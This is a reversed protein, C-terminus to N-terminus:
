ETGLQRFIGNYLTYYLVVLMMLVMIAAPVILFARSIPGLTSDRADFEGQSSAAVQAMARPVDGTIEGTEVVNNMDYNFLEARKLAVSLPENERMSAAAERARRALERNVLSDAAIEMSSKPSLGAKALNQLAWAFRTLSEATARGNVLPVMLVLRHRTMLFRNSLWFERIAVFVIIGLLLWPLMTTIGEGAYKMATQAAPLSGGAEDQVKMSKLSGNVIGLLIPFLGALCCLIIMFWFMQRKLRHSKDAQIAIFDCASAVEGSAEGAAITAADSPSFYRPFAKMATGLSEGSGVRDSLERIVERQGPTRARDSLTELGRNPAIGSQYFRGLQGFFFMRHKDSMKRPSMEVPKDIAPASRIAPAQIVPDAPRAPAAARVSQSQSQSQSSAPRSASGGSGSGSPAVRIQVNALGQGVLLKRVQDPTTGQIQGQRLRGQADTAEFQFFPM